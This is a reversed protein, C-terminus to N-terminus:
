ISARPSPDDCYPLLRILDSSTVAIGHRARRLFLGLTSTLLLRRDSPELNMPRPGFRPEVSSNSLPKEPSDKVVAEQQTFSQM